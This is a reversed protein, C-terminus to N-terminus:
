SYKICDRLGKINDRYLDSDTNDGYFSRYQAEILEILKKSQFRDAIQMFFDSIANFEEKNMQEIFSVTCEENKLLDPELMVYAWETSNEFENQVLEIFKTTLAKLKAVTIRENNM